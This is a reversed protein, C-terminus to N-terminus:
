KVDKARQYVRVIFSQGATFENINQLKDLDEKKTHYFYPTMKILSLMDDSNGTFEGNVVESYIETLNKIEEKDLENERPTQYILSKLNFLHKESPVIRIFIGDKKLIRGIEDAFVPAFACIVVDFTDNRVPIQNSSCVAFNVNKYKKAASDIAYKSIDFGCVNANNLAEKIRYPIYGVGCGADLIDVACKPILSIIKDALSKYYDKSMVSERAKIMEKNDGPALSNKKNVLLLNVYGSKAIDYCHGDACILSKGNNELAKGCKPCVFINNDIWM